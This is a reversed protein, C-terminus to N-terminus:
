KGMETIHVQAVRGRPQVVEVDFDEVSVRDYGGTLSVGVISAIEDDLRAQRELQERIM